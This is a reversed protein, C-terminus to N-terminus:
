INTKIITKELIKQGIRPVAGKYNLLRRKGPKSAFGCPMNPRPSLDPAIDDLSASPCFALPRFLACLLNPLGEPPYFSLDPGKPGVAPGPLGPFPGPEFFLAPQVLCSGRLGIRLGMRPYRTNKPGVAFIYFSLHYIQPGM